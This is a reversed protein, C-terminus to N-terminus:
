DHSYLYLIYEDKWEKVPFLHSDWLDIDEGNVFGGDIFDIVTMGADRGEQTHMDYIYSAFRGDHSYPFDDNSGIETNKLALNSVFERYSDRPNMSMIKNYKMVFATMSVLFMYKESRDSHYIKLMADMMYNIDDINPIRRLLYDWILYSPHTRRFRSTLTADKEKRILPENLYMSVLWAFCATADEEELALSFQEMSIRWERPENQLKMERLIKIRVDIKEFPSSRYYTITGRPNLKIPKENQLFAVGIYNPLRLIRGQCVARVFNELHAVNDTNQFKELEKLCYVRTRWDCFSVEEVLIIRLRNIVNTRIATAVRADLACKVHNKIDIAERICWAAEDPLRRRCYKQFASKLVDMRHGNRSVTASCAQATHSFM